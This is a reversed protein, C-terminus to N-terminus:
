RLPNRLRNRTAEHSAVHAHGSTHHRIRALGLRARQVDGPPALAGVTVSKHRAGHRASRHRNDDLMLNVLGHSLDDHLIGGLRQTGQSPRVHLRQARATRQVDDRHRPGHTLRGRLIQQKLDHARIPGRHSGLQRKVVLDPQGQGDQQGVLVSTVQDQLHSRRAGAVDGVQGIDDGRINRNLQTHAVSVHTAEATEFANRSGLGLQNPARAGSAGNDQVGVVRIDLRHRGQGRTLDDTERGGTVRSGLHARLIHANVGCISCGERQHRGSARRLDGQLDDSTVVHGVRQRCRRAGQRQAHVQRGNDLHERTRSRQAGVTHVDVLQDDVPALQRQDVVRVVRIKVRHTRPDGRQRRDALATAHDGDQALHELQPLVGLRQM